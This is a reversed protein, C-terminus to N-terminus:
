KVNSSGWPERALFIKAINHLALNLLHALRADLSGFYRLLLYKTILSFYAWLLLLPIIYVHDLIKYRWSSNKFHVKFQFKKRIVFKSCCCSFSQSSNQSIKLMRKGYTCQKLAHAWWVKQTGTQLLILYSFNKGM